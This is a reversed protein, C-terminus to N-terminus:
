SPKGNIFIKVDSNGNVQIKEDPSVVLTPVKKLIELGDSTKAEIDSEVSYILKDSEMKVLPLNAHVNIENLELPEANMLLTRFSYFPTEESISFSDIIAKYGMSNILLVYNGSSNLLVKFKGDADTIEKRLVSKEPLKLITLTAYPIGQLNISDAINGTIKYVQQQQSFSIFPLQILLVIFYIRRLGSFRVKLYYEYIFNKFKITMFLWWYFYPFASNENYHPFKKM